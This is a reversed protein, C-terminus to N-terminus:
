IRCVSVHDYRELMMQDREWQGRMGLIERELEAIRGQNMGYQQQQEQQRALMEQEQREREAQARQRDAFEREQRAQEDALRRAEAERAAVLAAQKREYEELAARQEELDSRPSPAAPPPTPAAAPRRPLDPADGSDTLNPPEQPLKPVNILGTLYKLNSCEYYFKRLSFHQADYRERLPELADM